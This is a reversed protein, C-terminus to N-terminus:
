VFERPRIHKSHDIDQIKSVACFFGILCRGEAFKIVTM